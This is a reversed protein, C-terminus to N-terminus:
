ALYPSVLLEASNQLVNDTGGIQSAQLLKRAAYERDPAVALILKGTGLGLPRGYDGKRGKINALAAALNTEDLTNKSGCALQWLGYGAACRADVGYIYEKRMFVNGDTPQDLSVFEPKKREQFIFAGVPRSADILAWPTGSGGSIINSSSQAVGAEDLVPHDTDFFYQGDYCLSDFGNKILPFVLEDPKRAASDGIMKVRPTYVGLNDDEIHNRSVGITLEYDDNVISFAHEKLGHVVRDGLWKRMGPVDGLWGYQNLATTSPVYMAVKDWDPKVANYAGEFLSIFGARLDDLQKQTIPKM